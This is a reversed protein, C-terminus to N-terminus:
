LAAKARCPEFEDFCKDEPKDGRSTSEMAIPIGYEDSPQFTHTENQTYSKTEKRLFNNNEDYIYYYVPTTQQDKDTTYVSIGGYTATYQPNTSYSFGAASGAVPVGCYIHDGSANVAYETHCDYNMTAAPKINDAHYEAILKGVETYNAKGSLHGIPEFDPINKRIVKVFEDFTYQEKSKENYQAVAYADLGITTQVGLGIFAPTYWSLEPDGNFDEYLMCDWFSDSDYTTYEGVPEVVLCWEVVCDDNTPLLLDLDGAANLKKKPESGLGKGIVKEYLPYFNGESGGLCDNMDEIIHEAFEHTSVVNEIVKGNCQSGLYPLGAPVDTMHYIPNGDPTLMNTGASQGYGNNLNETYNSGLLYPDSYVLKTLYPFSKVSKGNPANYLTTMRTNATYNSQVYIDTGLYTTFNDYFICGVYGLGNQGVISDRAPDITGDDSTSVYLSIRWSVYQGYGSFFGYTYGKGYHYEASSNSNGGFVFQEALATIPLATIATVAALFFATLKKLLKPPRLKSKFKPKYLNM